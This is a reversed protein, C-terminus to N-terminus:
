RCSTGIAAASPTNGVGVPRASIRRGGIFVDGPNGDSREKVRVTM